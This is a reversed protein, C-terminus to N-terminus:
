SFRPLQFGDAASWAQWGERRLEDVFERPGHTCYVQRPQVRRPLELLEAFDAHDSLPLACDAQWRAATQPDVAWGTVAFSVPRAIGPLRYRSLRKPLTVVARGPLLDTRYPQVDGLEVGEARYAESLRYIEPHQLVAIGRRTLIRTAEQAKGLPYAHIVPQAGDDLTQRVRDVLEAEIEERPPLRYAPRGFTCEMVLVDAQPVDAPEATHAAGLRFDGTYLLSREHGQVRCGEVLLMASGLCHGAPYATLQVDGWAQPQRYPLLAYRPSAGLRIRCLRATAPTCSITQHRALHDAHAHSVFGHPQRRQVDLALRPRTLFLGDEWHFM